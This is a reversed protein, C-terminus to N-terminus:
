KDESSYCALVAGDNQPTGIGLTEVRYILQYSGKLVMIQAMEGAKGVFVEDKTEVNRLFFRAKGSAMPLQPLNSGGFTVVDIEIDETQDAGAIVLGEHILTEGNAPVGGQTNVVAYYVDYTGEVVRRNYLGARTRGLFVRDGAANRLYIEGDDYVSLPPAAGGIKISGHLETTKVDVALPLMSEAKVAEGSVRGFTNAPLGGDSVDHRFFVDYDGRLLNSKIGLSVDGLEGRDGGVAGVLLEGRNEPDVPKSEGDVTIEGEVSMIPLSLETLAALQEGSLAEESGLILATNLRGWRNAPAAAGVTDVGYFLDYDASAIVPVAAIVGDMTDAIETVSETLRDRLYIHGHDFPSKPPAIGDFDITGTMTVVPVAIAIKASFDDDTGEMGKMFTGAQLRALSNHPMEEGRDESEYFFEYSGEVLKATISGGVAKSTKGFTTREEEGEFSVSILADDYPSLPPADGNFTLDLEVEISVINIDKPSESDANVTLPDDVLARRNIPALSAGPRAEYSVRYTGALVNGSLKGASVRGLYARDDTDINVLYIDGDDYVSGEYPKGNVTVNLMVKHSKLEQPWDDLVGCCPDEPSDYCNDEGTDTDGDTTGTTNSPGTPDTTSEPGTASDSMSLPDMSTAVGTTSADSDGASNAASADTGSIGAGQDDGSCAGLLLALTGVLWGCGLARERGRWPGGYAHHAGAGDSLPERDFYNAFM